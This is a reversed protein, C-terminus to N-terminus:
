RRESRQQFYGKLGLSDSLDDQIQYAVGTEYLSKFYKTDYKNGSLILVLKIPLSILGGTKARATSEYDEM